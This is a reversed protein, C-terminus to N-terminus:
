VFAIGGFLGRSLYILYGTFLAPLFALRTYRSGKKLILVIVSAFAMILSALCVVVLCGHFGLLLGVWAIVIGDGRGIQGRSMVSLGVACMGIGFGGLADPLGGRGRSMLGVTCLIALVLLFRRSVTRSRLDTIGAAFLMGGVVILAGMYVM